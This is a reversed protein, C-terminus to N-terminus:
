MAELLLGMKKLRIYAAQLSVNMKRAVPAVVHQFIPDSYFDKKVVIPAVKDTKFEKKWYINYLLRIVTAPMLLCSAFCNAHHELWEKTKSGIHHCGDEAKESVRRHLVNHGIEHAMSYRDSPDEYNLRKSLTVKKHLIDIHGLKNGIKGRKVTLGMDKAIQYPDIICSPIKDNPGCQQLQRNYYDTQPRTLEYAVHEIEADSLIPAKM